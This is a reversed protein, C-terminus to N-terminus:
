VLFSLWVLNSVLGFEVTRYHEKELARHLLPNKRHQGNTVTQHISIYQLSRSPEGRRCSRSGSNQM